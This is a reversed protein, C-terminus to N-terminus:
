SAPRNPELDKLVKRALELQNETATMVLANKGVVLYIKSFPDMTNRLAVLVENADNHPTQAPLYLTQELVQDTPTNGEKILYVASANNPLAASWGPIQGSVEAYVGELQDATTNM